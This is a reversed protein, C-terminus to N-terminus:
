KESDNATEALLGELEYACAEVADDFGRAFEGRTELKIGAICRWQRVLEQLRERLSPAPAPETHLVAGCRGCSTVGTHLNTIRNHPCTM